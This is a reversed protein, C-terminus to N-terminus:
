VHDQLADYGEEGTRIQVVNDVNYVFVKGDGIKGTHLVKKAVDIIASVPVKCVVVEVKVKQLLKTEIPVGRYFEASGKQMGCGMVQTVSMGTVGIKGLEEKLIDFREPRTVIVVKTIRPENPDKAAPEKAVAIPATAPTFDDLRNYEQIVNDHKEAHMVPIFDAYSSPLGHETIDLGLIEEDESARLGMTNKIVQFVIFMTVAVWVIVTLVGLAQIALVDAGGGTLLGPKDGTGTGDSFLGVALTGFAGCLGHVGIAGVPDDIHLV